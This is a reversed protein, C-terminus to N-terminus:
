PAAVGGLCPGDGGKQLLKTVAGVEENLLLEFASSLPQWHCKWSQDNEESCDCLCCAPHSPPLLSLSDLGLPRLLPKQMHQQIAM